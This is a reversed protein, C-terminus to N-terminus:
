PVRRTRLWALLDDEAEPKLVAAFGPMRRLGKRVTEHYAPENLLILREILIPGLDGGLGTAGHCTACHQTYLSAGREAIGRLTTAHPREALLLEQPTATIPPPPAVHDSFSTSLYALLASKKEPPVPAGWGVMKEVETTWQKTSLRAATTMEEGHCILCNEVFTQRGTMDADEDDPSHKPPGQAVALSAILVASTFM